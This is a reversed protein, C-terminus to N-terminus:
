KSNHNKHIISYIDIKSKKDLYVQMKIKNCEIDDNVVEKNNNYNFIMENYLCYYTNNYQTILIVEKSKFISLYQIKESKNILNENLNMFFKVNKINKDLLKLKTEDIKFNRDSIENNSIINLESNSNNRKRSLLLCNKKIKSFSFFINENIEIDKSINSYHNLVLDDTAIRENKENLNYFVLKNKNDFLMLDLEKRFVNIINNEKCELPFIYKLHFETININFRNLFDEKILKINKKHVIRSLIKQNKKNISMQLLCALFDVPKEIDNEEDEKLSILSSSDFNNNKKILIISDYGESNSSVPRIYACNIKKLKIKIINDAKNIELNRKKKSTKELAKRKKRNKFISGEIFFFNDLSINLNKLKGSIIYFHCQIEFLIGIVGKPLSPNKSLEGFLEIAIREFSLQTLLCDYEFIYKQNNNNNKIDNDLQKIKIYKMPLKKMMELVKIKDFITRKKLISSIESIINLLYINDNYKNMIENKIRIYFDESFKEFNKNSTLYLYYYLPNNKFFIFLNSGLSSDNIEILKEIYIHDLNKNDKEFYLSYQNKVKDDNMSSCKIIYIKSYKQKDEIKSIYENINYDGIIEKFQDFILYMTKEGIKLQILYSIIEEMYKWKENFKKDKMYILLKEYENYDTFLNMSEILITNIFDDMNQENLFKLNLYFGNVNEQKLFALLTTSKGIGQPGFVEFPEYMITIKDLKNLFQKREESFIFSENMFDKMIPFYKDYFITLDKLKLAEYFIKKRQKNFIEQSFEINKDKIEITLGKERLEKLIDQNSINKGNNFFNFNQEALDELVDFIYDRDRIQIKENKYILQLPEIFYYYKINGIFSLNSSLKSENLKEEKLKKDREENNLKIFDKISIELKEIKKQNESESIKKLM